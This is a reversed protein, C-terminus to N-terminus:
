PSCAYQSSTAMWCYTKAKMPSCSSSGSVLWRQTRRMTTLPRQTIRPCPKPLCPFRYISAPGDLDEAIPALLYDWDIVIPTEGTEITGASAEVPLLNGSDSLESFFDLGPQIDDLSGGNALSAALVTMFGSEGSTPDGSIAIKDHYEPSLLDEWETPCQEVAAADCGFAM